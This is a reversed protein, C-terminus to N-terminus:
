NSNQTEESVKKSIQLSAELPVWLLPHRGVLGDAVLPDELSQRGLHEDVVLLEVAYCGLAKGLVDSLLSRLVQRCLWKVDLQLEPVIIFVFIVGAAGRIAVMGGSLMSTICVVLLRLAQLASCSLAAEAGSMMLTTASPVLRRALSKHGSVPGMVAGVSLLALLLGRAVM